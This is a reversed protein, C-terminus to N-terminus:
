KCDWESMTSKIEAAFYKRATVVEKSNYKRNLEAKAQFEFPEEMSM